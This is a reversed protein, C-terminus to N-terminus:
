KARNVTTWNSESILEGARFFETKRQLNNGDMRAKIMVETTDKTETGKFAKLLVNLFRINETKQPVPEPNNRANPLSKPLTYLCPPTLLRSKVLTKKKKDYDYKPCPRGLTGCLMDWIIVGDVIQKRHIIEASLRTHLGSWANKRPDSGPNQCLSWIIFEDANAPREFINTNNGDLCGKAEIICTYDDFKVEYDHRESAGTFDWSSIFKKKKLFELIDAIFEKKENTSAAQTGRIKEIASRFIGSDIFEQKTLGHDGLSHAGEKLAETFKDIKERTESALECKIIPENPM